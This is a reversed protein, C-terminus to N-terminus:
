DDLGERKRIIPEIAAINEPTLPKGRMRLEERALNSVRANEVTNVARYRHDEDPRTIFGGFMSRTTKVKRVAHRYAEYYLAPPPEKSKNAEFWDYMYDIMIHQIANTDAAGYNVGDLGKQTNFATVVKANPTWGRIRDAEKKQRDRFEEREAPTLYPFAEAINLAVFGEPDINAMNGLRLATEGNAKIGEGRAEALAAAENQEAQATIRTRTEINLGDFGPVKTPDRFDPNKLVWEWAEDAAEQEARNIVTEDRQVRNMVHKRVEEGKEPSWEKSAVKADIAAHMQDLSAASYRRPDTPSGVVSLGKLYEEPDVDNGNPDRVRVHVHPGSTKGTLGITGVVAGAPVPDGIKFSSEGQMHSFSMTYNDDFRIMTWNGANPSKNSPDGDRGSDIVTGGVPAKISSGEPGTYDVGNSGRQQHEAHNDSIGTGGEVLAPPAGSAAAGEEGEEGEVTSSEAEAAGGVEPILSMIEKVGTLTDRLERPAQLAKEVAAIDAANMEKRNEELYGEVAETDGFPNNLMDISANRHVTSRTNFKLLQVPASDVAMGMAGAEEEIKEDLADLTERLLPRNGWQVAAAEVLMGKEGQITELRQKKEERVVHDRVVDQAALELPAIRQELMAKQRPNAAAGYYKERLEEMQAAASGGVRMADWRELATMGSTLTELERQYELASKRTVTEDFQRQIANDIEAKEALARGTQEMGAGFAGLMGGGNDAPRLEQGHGRASAVQGPQYTPARPM